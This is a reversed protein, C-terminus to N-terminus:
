GARETEYASIGSLTHSLGGTVQVTPSAFQQHRQCSNDNMSSHNVTDYPPLASNFLM